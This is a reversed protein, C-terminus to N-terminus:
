WNDTALSVYTSQWPLITNNRLTSALEICAGASANGAANVSSMRYILCFLGLLLQCSTLYRMKVGGGVFLLCSVRPLVSYISFTNGQRLKGRCKSLAVDRIILVSTNRSARELRVNRPRCLFYLSFTGQYSASASPIDYSRRAAAKGRPVVQLHAAPIWRCVNSARWVVLDM